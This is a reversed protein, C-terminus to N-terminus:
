LLNLCIIYSVSTEIYFISIKRILMRVKIALKTPVMDPKPSDVTISGTRIKNKGRGTV